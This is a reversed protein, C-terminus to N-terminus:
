KLFSRVFISVAFIIAMIITLIYINKEMGRRTTNDESSMGGAADTNTKQALILVTLMVASIISTAILIKEM